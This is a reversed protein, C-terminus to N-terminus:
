EVVEETALTKRRIKNLEVRALDIGILESTADEWIDLADYNVYKTSKIQVVYREDGSEYTRKVIRTQYM